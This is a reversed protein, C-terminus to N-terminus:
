LALALQRVGGTADGFPGAARDQPAATVACKSKAGRLAAEAAVVAHKPTNNVESLHLLVLHRLQESALERTLAASKRNSLHGSGGTIRSQLLPPYPGNRLMEEDHNSELLLLDLRAFAVRLTEPVAGLDHAVGTRFGNSMATAVVATPASADHPVRVLEFQLAGITFPAPSRVATCRAEDLEDIAGITGASGFVRWKWKRQAAALGKMHDIHEHTVIVASISEPAVHVSALRLALARPSYGCDILVRTGDSELLISNGKSGSGLTWAKM